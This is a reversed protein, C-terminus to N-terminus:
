DGCSKCSERLCTVLGCVIERTDPTLRKSTGLKEKALEHLWQGFSGTEQSDM